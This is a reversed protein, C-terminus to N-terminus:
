RALVQERLRLTDAERDPSGIVIILWDQDAARLINIMSGLALNTFGTKVASLDEYQSILKNTATISYKNGLESTFAYNNSHSPLKFIEKQNLAKVLKSLDKASSYNSVSDFGMPNSFRSHTLGLEIAEQNMLESFPLNLKQSVHAGLLNAADNASGVLISNILDEVLVKDNNVLGLSPSIKSNAAVNAVTVEETLDAHELATWITMLKTLSAVPLSNDFQEGAIIQDTELNQVLYSAALITPQNTQEPVPFSVFNGLENQEASTAGLIKINATPALAPNALATSGIYFIALAPLLIGLAKIIRNMTIYYDAQCWSAVL